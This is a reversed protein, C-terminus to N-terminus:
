PPQLYDVLKPLPFSKKISVIRNTNHTPNTLVGRCCTTVGSTKNAVTNGGDPGWASVSCPYFGMEAPM